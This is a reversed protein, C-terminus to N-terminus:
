RFVKGEVWVYENKSDLNLIDWLLGIGSLDSNFRLNGFKKGLSEFLMRTSYHLSYYGTGTSGIISM